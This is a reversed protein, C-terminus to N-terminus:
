DYVPIFSLLEFAKEQLPDKTEDQTFMFYPEETNSRVVFMYARSIQSLHDLLADFAANSIMKTFNRSELSVVPMTCREHRFFKCMDNKRINLQTIQSVNMTFDSWAIRMHFEVYTSLMKLFIQTKTRDSLERFVKKLNLHSSEKPRFVKEVITLNKYQWVCKESSMTESSLSTRIVYVGDLDKAMKVSREDLAYDFFNDKIKVQFHIKVGSNDLVKGVVDSIREASMHKVEEVKAKIADLRARIQGLLYERATAFKKGVKPNKFAILREGPYEKSLTFELLDDPGLLQPSFIDRRALSLVSAQPLATIWDVEPNNTKLNLTDEESLMGKDAVLVVRLHPFDKRIDKLKTLYVDSYPVHGFFAEVSLPTGASDSLLCYNVQPVHSGKRMPSLPKTQSSVDKSVEDDRVKALTSENGNLYSSTLDMFVMDEDFELHRTALRQEILKKRAFLWDMADNIEDRTVFYEPNDILIDLVEDRYEVSDLVTRSRNESKLDNLDLDIGLTSQYAANLTDVHDIRHPALINAVILGLIIQRERSKEANILGAIELNDMSWLVADVHGAPFVNGFKVQNGILEEPIQPFFKRFSETLIM